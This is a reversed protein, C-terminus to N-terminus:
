HGVKKGGYCAAVEVGNKMVTVYGGSKESLACAKKVAAAKSAHATKHAKSSGRRISGTEYYTTFKM